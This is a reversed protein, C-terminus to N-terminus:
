PQRPHSRTSRRSRCAGAAHSRAPGRGHRASCGRCGRGAQPEQLAPLDVVFDSGPQPALPEVLVGEQPAVELDLCLEGQPEGLERTLGCGRRSRSWSAPSSETRHRASTRSRGAPSALTSTSPRAISRQTSPRRSSTCTRRPTGVAGCRRMRGLRTRFEGLGTAQYAAIQYLQDAQVRRRRLDGLHGAPRARGRDDARLRSTTAATAAATTWPGTRTPSRRRAGNTHGARASSASRASTSARRWDVYYGLWGLHAEADAFLCGPPLKQRDGALQGPHLSDTLRLDPQVPRRCGDGALMSPTKVGGPPWM